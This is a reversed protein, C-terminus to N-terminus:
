VSTITLDFGNTIGIYDRLKNLALRSGLVARKGGLMGLTSGPLICGRTDSATNGVHFVIGSKGPVNEVIWTDKHKTGQHPECRYSGEAIYFDSSELTYCLLNNTYIPDGIYHSLVGLTYEGKHTMRTLIIKM